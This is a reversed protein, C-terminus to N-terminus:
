TWKFRLKEHNYSSQSQKIYLYLVYLLQQYHLKVKCNYKIFKSTKIVLSIFGM